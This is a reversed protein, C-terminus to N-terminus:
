RKPAGGRTMNLSATANFYGILEKEARNLKKRSCKQIIVYVRCGSKLGYYVNGNQHM